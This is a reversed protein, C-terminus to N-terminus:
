GPSGATALDPNHSLAGAGALHVAWNYAVISLREDVILPKMGKSARLENIKDVFRQTDPPPEAQVSASLGVSLVAASLLVGLVRGTSRVRGVGGGVERATDQWLVASLVWD